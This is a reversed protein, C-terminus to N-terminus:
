NGPQELKSIIANVLATAEKDSLRGKPMFEAISITAEAINSIVSTNQFKDHKIAKKAANSGSTNAITILASLMESPKNLKDVLTNLEKTGLHVAAPTNGSNTNINEKIINALYISNLKADTDLMSPVKDEELNRILQARKTEVKETIDPIDLFVKRNNLLESAKYSTASPKLMQKQLTLYELMEKLPKTYLDKCYILNYNNKEFFESDAIIENAVVKYIAKFTNVNLLKTKILNAKVYDQLLFGLIPNTKENFGLVKIAKKLPEGMLMLQKACEKDRWIALFYEKFFETEIEYETRRAEASMNRNEEIRRKLEEGWAFNTQLETANESNNATAANDSSPQESTTKASDVSTNQQKNFKSRLDVTLFDSELLISM